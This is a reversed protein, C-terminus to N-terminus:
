KAQDLADRQRVLLEYLAQQEEIREDAREEDAAGSIAAAQEILTRINESVDAIRIELEERTLEQTM